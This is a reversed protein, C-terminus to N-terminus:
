PDGTPKRIEMKKEVKDSTPARPLLGIFRSLILLAMFLGIAAQILTLKYGLPYNITVNGFHGFTTMTYFSFSLSSLRGFPAFDFAFYSSLYLYFVSFWLIIEAYNLLLLITIRTYGQIVYPEPKEKDISDSLKKNSQQIRARTVRYYDFLLANAQVILIDFVRFVGWYAFGLLCSYRIDFWFFFMLFSLLTNLLVYGEVWVKDDKKRPEFYLKNALFTPSVHHLVYFLTPFVRLIFSEKEDASM